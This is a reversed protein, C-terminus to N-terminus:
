NIDNDVLVNLKYVLVARSPIKIGDGKLGYALFPPLILIAEGGPKLMKLGHHLGAEGDSRGVVIEKPGSEDSSYCITGDLLSCEYNILIHDNDKLTSGKGEEMIQYWLGSSTETMKLNKREIYSLILERDKQVLYRNLEAMDNRGPTVDGDKRNDRGSSCSLLVATFFAIILLRIAM